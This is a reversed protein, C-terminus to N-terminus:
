KRLPPLAAATACGNRVAEERLLDREPSAPFDPSFLLELALVSNGHELQDNVAGLWAEKHARLSQVLRQAAEMKQPQAGILKLEAFEGGGGGAVRLRIVLHEGPNVPTSPWIMPTELLRVSSAKASWILKNDRLIQIENLKQSVSLTPRALSITAIPISDRHASSPKTPTDLRPAIVCINNMSTRAGGASLSTGLGLLARIRQLLTPTSIQLAPRRPAASQAQLPQPQAFAKSAGGANVLFLMLSFAALWLSMPSPRHLRM